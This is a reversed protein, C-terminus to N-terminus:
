DFPINADRDNDDMPPPTMDPLQGQSRPEGGRMGQPMGKRRLKIEGRKQTFTKYQEESLLKSIKKDSTSKIKQIDADIKDMKKLRKDIEKESLNENKEFSKQYTRRKEMQKAIDKQEKVLIDSLKNKQDLTLGEVVSLNEVWYEDEAQRQMGSPPGGPGRRDGREGQGGGFGGFGGGQPPQAMLSFSALFVLLSTFTIRKM